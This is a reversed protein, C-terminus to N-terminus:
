YPLNYTVGSSSTYSGGGGNGTSGGSGSLQSQYQQTQQQASKQRAYVGQSLQDIAALIQNPSMNANINQNAATGADTPTAGTATLISQYANRADNVAINLQTYGTNGLRSQLNNIATNADTSNTMNLGSNKLATQVQTALQTANSAATNLETEQQISQALGTANAGTAATGIAITNQASAQGPAATTAAASTATGSAQGELSAINGGGAVIAQQLAGTGVGNPAYGM